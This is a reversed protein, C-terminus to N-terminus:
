GESMRQAFTVGQIVPGTIGRTIVIAIGVGLVLAVALGVAMITVSANLSKESEESLAKTQSIGALATQEAAHTLKEAAAQRLKTIADLKNWNNLFDAVAAKYAEAGRQINELERINKEQRTITRLQNLKAQIADFNKLVDNLIAQNRLAQGRFNSVRVGNGLDIVDNIWSIKDLRDKVQASDVAGKAAAEALAKSQSDLYNAANTMFMQASKDMAQRNAEMAKDVAMTNDAEKRYEKLAATAAAEQEKLKVLEPHKQYLERAKALEKDALALSDQADKWFKENGTYTFGSMAYMAQSVRRELESAIEVEPAYETALREARGSASMMNIMAMGGLSAAILILIGFGLGIKVGLKLNKM